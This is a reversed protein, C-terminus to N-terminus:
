FPGAAGNSVFATSGLPVGSCTAAALHWTDTGGLSAHTWGAAGSEFDFVLPSLGPCNDADDCIGDGDPDGRVCPDCLDGLGDGDADQQAPNPISPCNDCLDGVGDSDADAQAPDPAGPCVDLADCAGDADRDPGVCADCDDGIRDGDADTQSPNYVAACNDCADVVGDSDSDEQGPDPAAPCVDADDCIGDLDADGALDADADQQGPNAILLCNDCANGAGDGDSDEQGQNAHVPCNDCADGDGDGDADWELDLIRDSQPDGPVAPEDRLVRPTPTAQWPVVNTRGPLAPNPEAGTVAGFSYFGPTADCPAPKGGPTTPHCLGNEGNGANGRGATAVAAVAFFRGDSSRLLVAMPHDQQWLLSYAGPYGNAAYYVDFYPNLLGDDALGGPMLSGAGRPNDCCSDAGPMGWNNMSGLCLAGAPVAPNGTAARADVLDVALIGQDNGNFSAATLGSTGTGSTGLGTNLKQNGFGIQWFVATVNPPRGNPDLVLSFPGPPPAFYALDACQYIPYGGFEGCAAFTPDAGCALVAAAAAAVARSSTM